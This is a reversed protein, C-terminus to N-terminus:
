YNVFKPVIVLGRFVPERSELWALLLSWFCKLGRLKHIERHYFKVDSSISSFISITINNRIIIKWRHRKLRKWSWGSIFSRNLLALKYLTYLGSNLAWARRTSLPMSVLMPRKPSRSTRSESCWRDWWHWVLFFTLAAWKLTLIIRCPLTM